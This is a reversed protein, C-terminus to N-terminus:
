FEDLVTEQGDGDVFAAFRGAARDVAHESQEALELAAEANLNEVGVADEDTVAVAADFREGAGIEAIAAIAVGDDVVGHGFAEACRAGFGSSSAICRWSRPMRRGSAIISSADSSPRPTMRHRSSAM